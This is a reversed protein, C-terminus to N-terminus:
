YGCVGNRRYATSKFIRADNEDLLVALAWAYPELLFPLACFSHVKFRTPRGGLDDLLHVGRDLFM